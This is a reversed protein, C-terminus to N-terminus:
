IDAASLRGLLIRTAIRHHATAVASSARLFAFARMALRIRLSMLAHGRILQECADLAVAGSLRRVPYDICCRAGYGRYDSSRAFTQM